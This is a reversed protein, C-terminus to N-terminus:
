SAEEEQKNHNLVFMIMTTRVVLRFYHNYSRPTNERRTVLCSIKEVNPLVNGRNKNGDM